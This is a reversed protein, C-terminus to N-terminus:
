ANTCIQDVGACTCGSISPQVEVPPPGTVVPENLAPNKASTPTLTPEGGSDQDVLTGLFILGGAIIALAGLVILVIPWKMTGIVKRTFNNVGGEQYDVVDQEVKLGGVSRFFANGQPPVEDPDVKHPTRPDM